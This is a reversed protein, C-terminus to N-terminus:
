LYISARAVHIARPFRLAAASGYDTANPTRQAALGRDSGAEDIPKVECM